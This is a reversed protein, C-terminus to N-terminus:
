RGRSRCPSIIVGTGPEGENFEIVCSKGAAASKPLGHLYAFRKGGFFFSWRGNFKATPISSLYFQDEGSQFSLDLAETSGMEESLCFQGKDRAVNWRTTKSHLTVTSPGAVTEEDKYVHLSFCHRENLAAFLRPSPFLTAALFLLVWPNLLGTNRM